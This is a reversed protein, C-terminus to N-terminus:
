SASTQGRCLDQGPEKLLSLLYDTTRDAPALSVDMLSNVACQVPESLWWGEVNDYIASLHTVASGATTHVVGCGILDAFIRKLQGPMPIRRIDYLLLFPAKMMLIEAIGTTIHDIVVIRSESISSTFEGRDITIGKEELELTRVTDWLYEVRRPRFVFDGRLGAPLLEMFDTVGKMERIFTSNGANNENFEAWYVFKTRSVFLVKKKDPAFSYPSIERCAFGGQVLNEVDKKWGVTVYRDAADYEIFTRGNDILFFGSGHEIAIFKRGEEKATAIYLSYPIGSIWHESVVHSFNRERVDERYPDYYDRFNEVFARPLCYRLTQMFYAEFTNEIARGAILERKGLDADRPSIKTPPLFFTNIAGGSSHCLQDTIRQPFTVGLVAIKPEKGSERYYERLRIAMADIERNPEDGRYTFRRNVVPFERKKYLYYYHSVLQQVGFDSTFCFIYDQHNEPIFFDEKDLLRIASRDIDLSNLYVYKDYTVAIHRYLWYAFATQWFNVSLETGHSDNLKRALVPLIKYYFSVCFEHGTRMEERTVFMDPMTPIEDVVIDSLSRDHRSGQWLYLSESCGDGWFEPLSTARINVDRIKGQLNAM